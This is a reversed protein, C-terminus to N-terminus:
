LAIPLVCTDASLASTCADESPNDMWEIKEPDQGLYKLQIISAGLNSRQIEPTSAEELENFAQETFLRYCYGPGQLTSSNVTM